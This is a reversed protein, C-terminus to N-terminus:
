EPRLAEQPDIDVLGCSVCLGRKGGYVVNEADLEISTRSLVTICSPSAQRSGVFAQM